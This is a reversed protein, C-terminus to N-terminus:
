RLNLTCLCEVHHTYPFMDFAKFDKLEYKEILVKLDRALSIPNCSLYLIKETNSKLIYQLTKKDIGSRPPDVLILTPKENLQVAIDEVKGVHFQVNLFSQEKRIKEAGLISNQSLEIGVVKKAYKSIPFTFFGCGCYFDFVISNKPISKIVEEQIIGAIYPNVQFFSDGLICYSYSSVEYSLFPKGYVCRHNLLIGVISYKEVLIKPIPIAEDTEIALFMEEKDNIRIMLKGTEMEIFHDQIFENIKPHVLMCKQIAVFDHSGEQYYGYQFHHVHLSIKNRYGLVPRSPVISFHISIGHHEMLDCIMEEKIKLSQEYSVFDFSCGGCLFAYPCFSPIRFESKQIIKEVKGICFRKEDKQIQVDVVEDKLTRPIFVCKNHIHALGRGEYDQKEIQVLM